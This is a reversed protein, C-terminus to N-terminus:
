VPVNQSGINHKTRILIDYTPYLNSHTNTATYADYGAVAQDTTELTTQARIMLYIRAKPEVTNRYTGQTLRWSMDENPINTAGDINDWNYRCLRNMWKFIRLEKANPQPNNFDGDKPQINVEKHYLVKMYKRLATNNTLIPNSIFPKVLYENFEECNRSQSAVRSLRVADPCHDHDFQVLEVVYKTYNSARGYLILRIDAWQMISKAGPCCAGSINPASTTEIQWHGNSQTVGGSSQAPIINYFGLNQLSTDSVRPRSLGLGPAYQTIGIGSTNICSTIDFTHCPYVMYKTDTDGLTDSSNFRYGCVIAGRPDDPTSCYQYRFVTFHNDQLAEKKLQRLTFRPKKGLRATGKEYPVSVIDTASRKVSRKYRRKGTFLRRRVSRLDSQPISRKRAYKKGSKSRSKKRSSTRMRRQRKAIPPRVM